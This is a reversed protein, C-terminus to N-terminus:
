YINNMKAVALINKICEDMDISKPRSQQISRPLRINMGNWQRILENMVDEWAKNSDLSSSIPAPTNPMPTTTELSGMIHSILEPWATTM